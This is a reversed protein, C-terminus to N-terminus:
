LLKDEKETISCWGRVKLQNDLNAAHIKDQTEKQSCNTQKRRCEKCDTRERRQKKSKGRSNNNFTTTRAIM